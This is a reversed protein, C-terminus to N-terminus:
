DEGPTMITLVPARTDGPGIHLHLTTLTAQHAHPRNPIRLVKLAVRDSTTGRSAGHASVRAMTLVDWLRGTEQQFADNEGDWAVAEAHAAATLACPFNFGAERATPTVDVLIGDNIAQARTYTHIPELDDFFGNTM